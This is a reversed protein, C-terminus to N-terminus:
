IEFCPSFLDYNFQLVVCRPFPQPTFRAKFIILVKISLFVTHSTLNLDIVIIRKDM